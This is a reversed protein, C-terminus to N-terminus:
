AWVCTGSAALIGPINSSVQAFEDLETVSRRGEIQNGAQVKRGGLRHSLCEGRVLHPHGPRSRRLKAEPPTTMNVWHSSDM